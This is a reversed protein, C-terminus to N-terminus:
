ESGPKTLLSKFFSFISRFVLNSKMFNRSRMRNDATLGLSCLSQFYLNQSMSMTLSYIGLSTTYKFPIGGSLHHIM